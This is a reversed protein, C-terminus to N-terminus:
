DDGLIADLYPNRFKGDPDYESVLQKFQPLMEYRSRVYEPALTFLKGWHPRPSFPALARDIKPLLNMVAPVDLKMTFHIGVSDQQRYPSMWFQDAAVSRIESTMLYPLIEDRMAFVAQLAEPAQARAVFFEAQLEDGASPLAEIRFHPLREHWAGLVGLQETCNEAPMESIPHMKRTAAAGGFFEQPATEDSRLKLWVQNVYDHQWTTFLSVSYAFSMIEDFHAVVETFPLKEYVLQRVEFAPLLDLTLRVIAGLAGLNVVAGLFREGDKERSFTVLEGNATVVDFAAVSSALTQNRVGSGHTATLCAGVVTIHALSALNPLAFGERQLVPALEGYTVNSSITVQKRERDLEIVHPLRDFMLLNDNSDAIRNFCHRTGLMKLKPLRQTVEQVQEVTEPHHINTTGYQFNGSWNRLGQANETM